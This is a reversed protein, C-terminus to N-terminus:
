VEVAAAKTEPNEMSLRLAELLGDGERVTGGVPATGDLANLFSEFGRAAQSVAELGYLAGSGVLSHVKRFLERAVAQDAEGRAVAGWEEAIDEYRGALNLFYEERLAKLKEEMERLEANM